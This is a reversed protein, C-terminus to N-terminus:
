AVHALPEGRAFRELNALFIEAQRAQSGNSISSAHPTLIVNELSWLPSDQPLPEVEFVDLYAGLLRGSALEAVLAPEEVIEGRGVNLVGAGDPLRALADADILRRTEDTLPCAIALWSARPLLEPLKEPPAWEDIPAGEAPRSRRVGVVHLGLARGLRAIESGIGGLGLVVLTQTDLDPPLELTSQELWRRECKARAFLPFRRALALLGAIASQAIPVANSGPSSTLVVGKEGVKAFIPHDLGANFCHLWSLKPASMVASFFGGSLEPYLDGSFYACEIRAVADAAVRAKPDEPVLIREFATGTEREIADLRGAYARAFGPGLLLGTM